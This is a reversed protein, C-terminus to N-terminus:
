VSREITVSVAVADKVAGPKTVKILLKSAFNYKLLETAITEALSEILLYHRRLSVEKVLEAVKAYDIADELQDTNGAKATSSFLDIDVLVIQRVSKEWEYAGISMELKLESISTIDSM